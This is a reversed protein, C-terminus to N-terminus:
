RIYDVYLGGTKCRVLTPYSAQQTRARTTQYRELECSQVKKVPGRMLNILEEVKTLALHLQTLGVHYESSM